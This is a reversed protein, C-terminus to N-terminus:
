RYYIKYNIREDLDIISDTVIVSDIAHRTYTIEELNFFWTFGCILSVYNMESQHHFYVTDQIDNANIAFSTQMTEPNLPLSIDTVGNQLNYISDSSIETPFVILNNVSLENETIVGDVVSIQVFIINATTDINESCV